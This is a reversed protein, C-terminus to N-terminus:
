QHVRSWTDGGDVSRSVVGRVSVAYLVSADSPDAVLLKAQFLARAVWRVGGNDTRYIGTRTALYARSPTRPDMAVAVVHREDARLGNNSATWTYGADDSVFVGDYSTAAYM